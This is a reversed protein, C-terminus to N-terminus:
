LQIMNLVSAFGEGKASLNWDSTTIDELEEIKAQTEESFLIAQVNCNESFLSLIDSFKEAMETLNLKKLFPYIYPVLDRQYHLISLWGDGQWNGIINAGVHIEFLEPSIKEKIEALSGLKWIKDSMTVLEDVNTPIEKSFDKITLKM